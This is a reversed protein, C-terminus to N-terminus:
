CMMAQKMNHVMGINFHSTSHLYTFVLLQLLQMGCVRV